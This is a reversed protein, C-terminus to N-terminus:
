FVQTKGKAQMDKHGGAEIASFVNLSLKFPFAAAPVQKSPILKPVYTYM